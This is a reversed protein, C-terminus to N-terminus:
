RGDIVVKCAFASLLFRQAGLALPVGVHRSGSKNNASDLRRCSASGKKVSSRSEIIVVNSM